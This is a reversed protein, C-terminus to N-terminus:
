LISAFLLQVNGPLSSLAIYLGERQIVGGGKKIDFLASRPNSALDYDYLCNLPIVTEVKNDKRLREIAKCIWQFTPREEPKESWCESMISFSFVLFNNDNVNIKSCAFFQYNAYGKLM